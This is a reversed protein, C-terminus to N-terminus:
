RFSRMSITLGTAAKPPLTANLPAQETRRLHSLVDIRRSIGINAGGFSRGGGRQEDWGRALGGGKYNRRAVATFNCVIM